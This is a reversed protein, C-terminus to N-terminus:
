FVEFMWPFNIFRREGARARVMTAVPHAAGGNREGGLRGAGALSTARWEVIRTDCDVFVNQSPSMM